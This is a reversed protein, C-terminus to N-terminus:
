FVICSARGGLYFLLRMCSCGDGQMCGDGLEIYNVETFDERLRAIKDGEVRLSPEVREGQNIPSLPNPSPPPHTLTM